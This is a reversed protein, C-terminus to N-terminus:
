HAELGGRAIEFARQARLAIILDDTPKPAFLTFTFVTGGREVFGLRLNVEGEGLAGEGVFGGRWGDVVISRPDDEKELPTLEGALAFGSRELMQLADEVWASLPAAAFAADRRARVLLYAFLKDQEDDALRLHIAANDDTSADDPEAGWSAPFPVEFPVGSSAARLWAEQQSSGSPERLAFTVHATWFDEKVEDWQERKCLSTVCLLRAGDARISTRRVLQLEKDDAHTQVGTLDYFLGFPGPFWQGSVIQWGEREFSARLWADLPIEFPILTATVAVLPTGPEFNESFLCLARAQLMGDPVPGLQESPAWSKPLALDFTLTKDHTPEIEFRQHTREIHELTHPAKYPIDLSM